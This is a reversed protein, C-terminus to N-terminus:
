RSAPEDSAAGKGAAVQVGGGSLGKAEYMATDAAAILAARTTGHGPYVAIGISGTLRETKGRGPFLKEQGLRELINQGAARATEGRAGPLVLMFEDGGYRGAHDGPRCSAQLGAGVRRLVEDGAQHGFTDNYQKFRDLDVLLVALPRGRRAARELEQELLDNIHRYNHLGTLSDTLALRQFHRMSDELRRQAGTLRAGAAPLLGFWVLDAILRSWELHLQGYWWGDMVATVGLYAAGALGLPRRGGTGAYGVALVIALTRYAYLRAPDLAFAWILLALAGLGLLLGVRRRAPDPLLFYLATAGAAALLWWAPAGPAVLGAAVALVTGALGSVRVWKYVRM